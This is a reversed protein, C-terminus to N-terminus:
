ISSIIIFSYFFFLNIPSFLPPSSPFPPCIQLFFYVSSFSFSSYSLSIIIVYKCICLLTPGSIIFYICWALHSLSFSFSLLRRYLSLLFLYHLYLLFFLKTHLTPLYYYLYLSFCLLALQILTYHFLSLLLFLSFM